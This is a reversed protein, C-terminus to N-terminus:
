FGRVVQFQSISYFFVLILLLQEKSLMEFYKRVCVHSSFKSLSNILNSLNYEYVKYLYVVIKLM